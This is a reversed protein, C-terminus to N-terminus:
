SRSRSSAPNVPSAASDTAGSQLQYRQTQQVAPQMQSKKALKSIDDTSFRLRRNHRTTCKRFRRSPNPGRQKIPTEHQLHSHEPIDAFPDHGRDFVLDLPQIKGRTVGDVITNLPEPTVQGLDVTTGIAELPLRSGDHVGDTTINLPKPTVGFLTHGEGINPDSPEAEDHVWDSTIDLPEPTVGFLTDHGLPEVEDHVWDSIIDMPESTVGFLAYSQDIAPDLPEAEDHVWDSTIGLPKSTVGISADPTVGFPTHGQDITPNLSEPPNHM